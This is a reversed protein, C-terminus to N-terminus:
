IGLTPSKPPGVYSILGVAISLSIAYYAEISMVVTCFKTGRIIKSKSEPWKCCFNLVMYTLVRVTDPYLM